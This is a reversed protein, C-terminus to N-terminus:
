LFCLGYLSYLATFPGIVFMSITIIAEHHDRNNSFNTKKQSIVLITIIVYNKEHFVIITQLRNKAFFSAFHIDNDVRSMVNLPAQLPITPYTKTLLPGGGAM